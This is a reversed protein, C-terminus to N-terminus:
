GGGVVRTAAILHRQWYPEWLDSIRVGSTSSHIFEGDGVYLGVHAAPGGPAASFGLIDGPRLAAMDLELATGMQLQNRSIRPLQIGHQGYAYRILGSCDFGNGGNGGWVYPTGVVEFATAVVELALETTGAEPGPPRGSWEGETAAGPRPEGAPAGFEEGPEM